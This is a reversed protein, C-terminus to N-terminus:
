FGTFLDGLKLRAPNLWVGAIRIYHHVMSHVLVHGTPLM